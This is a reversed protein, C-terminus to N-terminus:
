RRRGQLLPDHEPVPRWDGLQPELDARSRRARQPFGQAGTRNKLSAWYQCLCNGARGCCLVMYEAICCSCRLMASARVQALTALAGPFIRRRNEETLVGDKILNSEKLPNLFINVIDSLIKAYVRETKVVEKALNSREKADKV